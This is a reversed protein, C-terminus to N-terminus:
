VTEKGVKDFISETTSKSINKDDRISQLEEYVAFFSVIVFRSIVDSTSLNM